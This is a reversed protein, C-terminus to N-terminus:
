CFATVVSVLLVLIVVIPISSILANLTPSEEVTRIVRDGFVERLNEFLSVMTALVIFFAQIHNASIGLKLLDSAGLRIIPVERITTLVPGEGGLLQREHLLFAKLQEAKGESIADIVAETKESGATDIKVKVVSLLQHMLSQEIHVAQIKQLPITINKKRLFGKKIILEENLMYFRFYFFEVISQIFIYLSIAIVTYELFGPSRDKDGSRFVLILILVWMSKIVTIVTKYLMVLLGAPAQRQPIEWNYNGQPNM